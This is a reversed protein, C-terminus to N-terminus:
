CAPRRVDGGLLDAADFAAGGPQRSRAALSRARLGAAPGLRDDRGAADLADAHQLAQQGPSSASRRRSM